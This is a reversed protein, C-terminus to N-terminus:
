LLLRIGIDACFNVQDPLNGGMQDVQELGMLVALHNQRHANQLTKVIREAFGLGSNHLHCLFQIRLVNFACGTVTDEAANGAEVEVVSAIEIKGLQNGFRIIHFAVKFGIKM